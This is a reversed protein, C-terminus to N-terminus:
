LPQSEPANSALPSQPAEAVPGDAYRANQIDEDSWMGGFARYASIANTAIAIDNQVIDDRTDLLTRQADLVDLFDDIGEQFRLRALRLSNAAAESAGVLDDRRELERKYRALASEVDSLADFVTQEYFAVAERTELDSVKIDARVRRLDPGEWTLSPGFGVGVIDPDILRTLSGFLGNLSADFSLVPFLRAREVEGLALQESIRAEAERIDPRRRILDAPTGSSIAGRHVPIPRTESLQSMLPTPDGAAAGTLAALRTRATEVNARFTPLSARTTLFLSEARNFDLDNSRGEDALVRLLSLSETQLEASAEAVELRGQSGRLDIYAQATQAAILVAIDRKAQLAAERDFEASRILAEVRGFADIEWSAGM